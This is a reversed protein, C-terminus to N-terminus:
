FAKRFEKAKEYIDHHEKRSAEIIDNLFETMSQGRVAAMIRLYEENSPRLSIATRKAKVGKMGKTKGNELAERAEEETYTKRTKREKTANSFTEYMPDVTAETFDKNAM